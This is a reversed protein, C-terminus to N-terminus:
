ESSTPRHLGASERLRLDGVKALYHQSRPHDRRLLYLHHIDIFALDQNVTSRYQEVTYKDCGLFGLEEDSPGHDFITEMTNEGKWWDIIVRVPEPIKRSIETVGSVIDASISTVRDTAIDSAPHLATLRAPFSSTASSPLGSRFIM